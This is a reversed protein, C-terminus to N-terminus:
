DTGGIKWCGTAVKLFKPDLHERELLNMVKRELEIGLAAACLDVARSPPSLYLTYVIPKTMTTKNGLLYSEVLHIPLLYTDLQISKFAQLKM